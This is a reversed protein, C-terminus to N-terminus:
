VAAPRDHSQPIRIRLVAGTGQSPPEATVDGHHARVIGRCISLGLGTGSKRDGENVRYFADFVKQRDSEPIGPGEDVIEIVVADGERKAAVRVIGGDPTYRIANDLLNVLVQEILDGHVRILQADPSIRTQLQINRNSMKLRRAAASVLDRLDEWDWKLDLSGHEVRTMDLLNQVYRDLREAESLVSHLLADRDVPKLSKEYAILSSAAGIISSLPTRLDHSVSSLLGARMKVRESELNAAELEAALHIRELAVSAQSVLADIYATEDATLGTRHLAVVGYPGHSTEVPWTTWAPDDTADRSSGKRTARISSNGAASVFIRAPRNESDIIIEAACDFHDALHNALTLLVQERTAAGAVSRTLLQLTTARRVAHERNSVADRMRAALNSSLSAMLLFFVLTALDGKETVSFTFIPPTFFFNFILFSLIGAYISPWLGFRVAVVLVGTMFLLSLNAHPLRQLVPAVAAALAVIVTAIAYPRVRM